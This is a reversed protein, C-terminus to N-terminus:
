TATAFYYSNAILFVTDIKGQWQSVLSYILSSFTLVLNTYAFHNYFTATILRTTNVLIIESNKDNTVTLSFVRGIVFYM